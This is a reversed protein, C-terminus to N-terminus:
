ISLQHLKQLYEQETQGPTAIMEVKELCGLAHYDMISSYGSRSIIKKTGNFLVILENDPLHSVLSINNLYSYETTSSPKGQVLLVNQKSNRFRNILQEEFITRQPELGSIVAVIEYQTNIYSKDVIDFRSLPGIFKAHNPLPYKHSLDGSLNANGEHDPIWCENYQNIILRHVLWAFPELLKLARPMKIMLQHTIYISHVSKNWMGFRNDSIVQDFYQTKLLNNLWQHETYIGAIINPLNKSMAWVQSKGRSYSIPFSPFEIFRIKPFQLRLFELPFGDAVITVDHGEIVLNRIIPVCRSAHGLGWNLPCLLIKM